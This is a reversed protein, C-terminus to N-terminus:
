IHIGRQAALQIGHKVTEEAAYGIIKVGTANIYMQPNLDRTEEWKFQIVMLRNSILM